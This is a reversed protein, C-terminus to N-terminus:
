ATVYSFTFGIRCLLPNFNNINVPVLNTNSGYAYFDLNTGNTSFGFTSTDVPLTVNLLVGVNGNQYNDIPAFPLGSIRAGGVMAVTNATLRLDCNITVLNGIKTYRGSQLGYTNTGTTTIGALTPTWTGEEYDDLTNVGAAPVQVSPFVINAIAPSTLTKNTLTEAGVLSAKLTFLETFNNDVEAPTLDSGKIARYVIAM